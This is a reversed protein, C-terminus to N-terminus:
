VWNRRYGLAGCVMCCVGGTGREEGEGPARINVSVEVLWADPRVGGASVVAGEVLRVAVVGGLQAEAEGCAAAVEVRQRKMEPAAAAAEAGDEEGEESDTGGDSGGGVMLDLGAAAASGDAPRRGPRKTGKGESLQGPGWMSGNM